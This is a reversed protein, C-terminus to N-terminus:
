GSAARVASSAMVAAVPSTSGATACASRVSAWRVWVSISRCIRSPSSSSTASTRPRSCWYSAAAPASLLFCAAAVSALARLM